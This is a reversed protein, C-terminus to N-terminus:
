GTPKHVDDEKDLYGNAPARRDLVFNRDQFMSIIALYMFSEANKRAVDLEVDETLFPRTHSIEHLLLANFTSTIFDIPRPNLHVDAYDFNEPIDSFLYRALKNSRPDAQADLKNFAHDCLTITARNLNHNTKPTGPQVVPRDQGLYDIYTIASVGADKCYLKPTSLHNKNDSCKREMGNRWGGTKQVWRADNDCYFRLDANVQVEEHRMGELAMFYKRLALVAQGDQDVVNNSNRTDQRFLVNFARTFDPDRRANTLRDKANKGVARLEDFLVDWRHIGDGSVPTSNPAELPKRPVCSKDLWYTLAQTTYPLLLIAPIFTSFHM